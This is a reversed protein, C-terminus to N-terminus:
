RRPRWSFWRLAALLGLAGWAGVVLLGVPWPAATEAAPDYASAIVDALHRVPFVAAIAALPGADLPVLVDSVLLLPLVSANVVAPASAADPVLRTVALGLSASSAAGVILGLVLRDLRDPAPVVGYAVAGTGAVVLVLLTAVLVAAGMRGALYAWTPLPTGRLRKLAGSERALVVGMALNTYCATVLAFTIVAPIYFAAARRQDGLAGGLAIVAVVLFLLPFVVTFFAAAPNRWFARWELAVRHWALASGSV